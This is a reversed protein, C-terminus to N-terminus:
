SVPIVWFIRRPFAPWQKMVRMSQPHVPSSAFNSIVQAGTRKAISIADGIHDGHGHSVVVYDVDLEASPISASPNDTFFPDVVIRHGGTEIGHTGHGYWIYKFAM